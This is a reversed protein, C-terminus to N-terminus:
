CGVEMGLRTMLWSGNGSTDWGVEMGLRTMSPLVPDNKLYVDEREAVRSGYYTQIAEKDM